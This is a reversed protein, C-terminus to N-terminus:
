KRVRINKIYAVIKSIFYGILGGIFTYLFPFLAVFYGLFNFQFAPYFTIKIWKPSYNYAYGLIVFYSSLGYIFGIWGGITVYKRTINTKKIKNGKLSTKRSKENIIEYKRTVM